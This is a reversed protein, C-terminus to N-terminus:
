CCCDRSFYKKNTFSGESVNNLRWWAVTEIWLKEKGTMKKGIRRSMLEHDFLHRLHKRELLSPDEFHFPQDSLLWVSDQMIPVTSALDEPAYM